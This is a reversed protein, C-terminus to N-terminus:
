LSCVIRLTVLFTTEQAEEEFVVDGGHMRAIQRAKTLGFGLGRGAPYSSFFPDFIMGRIAEPVGHGTDSIRAALMGPEPVSVSVRITGHKTVARISNRVLAGFLVQLQVPDAEMEVAASMDGPLSYAVEWSIEHQSFPFAFRERLEQLVVPFSVTQFEPSPAQSVLRLDSIMEQARHVNACIAALEARRGADPEDRLLLQARGMIAALPNNLDHGAGAAFEALSAFKAAELRRDFEKKSRPLEFRESAKEKKM